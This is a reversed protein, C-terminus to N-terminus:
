AATTKGDLWALVDERRALLRGGVVKMAPGRGRMHLKRVAAPSRKSLAAIENVDLFPPLPPEPEDQTTTVTTKTTVTKPM